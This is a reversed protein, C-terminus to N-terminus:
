YVYTELQLRSSWHQGAESITLEERLIVFEDAQVDFKAVTVAVDDNLDITLQTPWQNEITMEPRIVPSKYRAVLADGVSKASAASLFASSGVDSVPRPGYNGVSTEDTAYYTGGIGTVPVVNVLAARDIDLNSWGQVDETFTSAPTKSQFTTRNETTYTYWPTTMSPAIWHRTLAYGNLQSLSALATGSLAGGSTGLDSAEDTADIDWQTMEYNDASGGPIVRVGDIYGTVLSAATHLVYLVVRWPVVTNRDAAPTYTFTQAVSSATFTLSSPTFTGGGGSDSPTIVVTVVGNPTVTFNGSAIGVPGSAPIPAALAYATGAAATSPIARRLPQPQYPPQAPQPRWISPM